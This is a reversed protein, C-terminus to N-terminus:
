KMSQRSIGEGYIESQMDVIGRVYQGLEQDTCPELMNRAKRRILRYALSENKTETININMEIADGGFLNGNWRKKFKKHEEILEELIDLPVINTLDDVYVRIHEFKGNLYNYGCEICTGCNFGLKNKCIPCEM